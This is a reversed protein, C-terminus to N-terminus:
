DEMWNNYWVEQTNQRAIQKATDYTAEVNEQQM